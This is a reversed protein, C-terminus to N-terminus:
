EMPNGNEAARRILETGVFEEKDGDAGVAERLYDPFFFLRLVFFLIFLKVLIILWLVRGWTMARFGDVYLDRIRTWTHRM